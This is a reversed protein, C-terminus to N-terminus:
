MIEVKNKADKKVTKSKPISVVLVGDKYEARVDERKIEQPLAITKTFTGFSRESHRYGQGTTTDEDSRREGSITLLNGSAEINIDKKEMGPLDARVVLRDPLEIVDMNVDFMPIKKSLEQGTKSMDQAINIFMSDMNRQMMQIEKLPDRQDFMVRREIGSPMFAKQTNAVSKPPPPFSMPMLTEPHRSYRRKHKYKLKTDIIYVSEFLLALGLISIAIILPKNKM